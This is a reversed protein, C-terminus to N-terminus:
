LCGVLGLIGHTQPAARGLTLLTLHGESGFEQWPEQEKSGLRRAGAEWGEGELAGGM